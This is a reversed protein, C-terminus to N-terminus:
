FQCREQNGNVRFMGIILMISGVHSKQKEHPKQMKIKVLDAM